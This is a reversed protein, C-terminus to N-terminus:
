ETASTDSPEVSTEVVVSGEYIGLVRIRSTNIGLGASLNTIFEDEGGTSFFQDITM